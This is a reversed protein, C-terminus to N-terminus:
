NASAPAHTGRQKLGARRRRSEKPDALPPRYIEIRDHAQVTSDLTKLKGFIGVRSAELDIGPLQRLIGSAAIVQRLSCGEEVELELLIDGGRWAHCVQVPIRGDAM